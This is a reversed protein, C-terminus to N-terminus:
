IKEFCSSIFWWGNTTAFVTGHRENHEIRRVTLIDGVHYGSCMQIRCHNTNNVIVCHNDIMRLKDGVEINEDEEFDFDDESWEFNENMKLYKRLFSTLDFMIVHSSQRNIERDFQEKIDNFLEITKDKGEQEFTSKLLEKYYDEIERAINVYDNEVFTESSYKKYEIPLRELYYKINDKEDWNEEGFPDLDVNERLGVFRKIKRFRELNKNKREKESIFNWISQIESFHPNFIYINKYGYYNYQDKIYINYVYQREHILKGINTRTIEATINGIKLEVYRGSVYSIINIMHYNQNELIDDFFGIFHKIFEKKTYNKENIDVEDWDWDEEDFPDLEVSEYLKIYKM